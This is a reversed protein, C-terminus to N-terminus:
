PLRNLLRDSTAGSGGVARADWQPVRRSAPRDGSRGHHRLAQIQLMLEIAQDRLERNEAELRDLLNWDKRRERGGPGKRPGSRRIPALELVSASKKGKSLSARAIESM